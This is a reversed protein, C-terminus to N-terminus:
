MKAPERGGKGAVRWPMKASSVVRQIPKIKMINSLKIVIKAMTTTWCPRRFTGTMYGPRRMPLRIDMGTLPVKGNITLMAPMIGIMKAWDRSVKGDMMALKKVLAFFAEMALKAEPTTLKNPPVPFTYQIM